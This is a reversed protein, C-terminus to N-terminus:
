GYSTLTAAPLPSVTTGAVTRSHSSSSSVPVKLARSIASATVSSNIYSCSSIAKSHQKDMSFTINVLGTPDLGAGSKYLRVLSTTLLGAGTVLVLALAVECAMLVRPFPKQRELAKNPHQGEKIHENLDGGTAQLAPLLGILITATIALLAAFLFGRIDLSTDLAAGTAINGRTLIATVSRSVIPALVLGLATGAIAILISEMLLQQILRRRTAGLALRTALERERAAARAMLLSTLNLCALLLIGGCMSFMALLPKRFLLRAYTFGRSGSEAAFHFHGKEESAVYSADSTAEHLIPSTSREGAAFLCRASPTGDRHDV